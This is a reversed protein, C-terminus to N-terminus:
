QSKTQLQKPTLGTFRKIYKAFHSRDCFGLNAAIEEVSLQSHQLLNKGKEIRLQLIYQYPTQGLSKRFLRIFHYPSIQALKALEVIKLNRDLNVDIYEKIERLKLPSLGDQYSSLKPKTSCYKRLLHIALTTKLNDVLLSGSMQKSQLEDKLASFIGEILTDGRDMFQPVLEIRDCDVLGRGVQQLLTPEIALIAFEASTNWNCFHAIGAPIIAIDGRNRREVRIKGDLSREGKAVPDGVGCAIVHMNHQHEVTEFKPQQHFELHLDNWGSSVIVAPNPVFSNSAKDQKFDLLKITQKQM